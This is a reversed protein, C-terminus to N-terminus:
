KSRVRRLALGLAGDAPRWGYYYEVYKGRYSHFSYNEGMWHLIGYNHGGEPNWTDLDPPLKVYPKGTLGVVYRTFDHAPNRFWWGIKRGFVFATWYQQRTFWEPPLLNDRNTFLSFLVVRIREILSVM